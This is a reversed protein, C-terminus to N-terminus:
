QSTEYFGFCDVLQLNDGQKGMIVSSFTNKYGHTVQSIRIHSLQNDRIPEIIQIVISSGVILTTPLIGNMDSYIYKSTVPGSVMYGDPNFFYLEANPSLHVDSLVFNLSYAKNSVIRISWINYQETHSWSGQAMSIDTEINHGFRFPRGVGMEDLFIDENLLSDINFIPMSVVPIDNINVYQLKPHTNFASGNIFITSKIQANLSISFILACIIIIKTNTM